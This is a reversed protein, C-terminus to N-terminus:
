KRQNLLGGAKIIAIQRSTLQHSTDVSYGGTKNVLTL